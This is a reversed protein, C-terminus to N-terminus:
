IIFVKFKNIIIVDYMKKMRIIVVMIIIIKILSQYVLM